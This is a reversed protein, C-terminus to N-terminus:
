DREVNRQCKIDCTSTSGSDRECKKPISHRINCYYGCDRECKKHIIDYTVSHLGVDGNVNRKTDRSDCTVTTVVIGNVNKCSQRMQLLVKIGFRVNRSRVTTVGIRESETTNNITAVDSEPKIDSLLLWM